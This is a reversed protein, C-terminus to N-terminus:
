VGGNHDLYVNCSYQLLEYIHAGQTPARFGRDRYIRATPWTIPKPAHRSSSFRHSAESRMALHCAGWKWDWFRCAVM